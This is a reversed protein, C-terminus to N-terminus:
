QNNGNYIRKIESFKSKRISTMVLIFVSYFFYIVTEEATVPEEFLEDMGGNMITPLLILILIIPICSAILIATNLNNSSRALNNLRESNCMFSSAKIRKVYSILSAIFCFLGIIECVNAYLEYKFTFATAVYYVILYISLGFMWNNWKNLFFVRKIFNPDRYNLDTQNTNM